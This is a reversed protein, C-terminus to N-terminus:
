SEDLVAQLSVSPRVETKSMTFAEEACFCSLPSRVPNSAPWQHGATQLILCPASRMRFLPYLAILPTFPCSFLQMARHGRMTMCLYLKKSHKITSMERPRDPLSSGLRSSGGALSVGVSAPSDRSSSSAPAWSHEAQTQLSCLLTSLSSVMLDWIRLLSRRFCAGLMLRSTTLWSSGLAGGSWCSRSWWSKWPSADDCSSNISSSSYWAVVSDTIVMAESRSYYNVIECYQRRLHLTRLRPVSHGPGAARVPPTM